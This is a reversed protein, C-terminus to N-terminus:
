RATWYSPWVCVTRAIHCTKEQSLIGEAFSVSTGGIREIGFATLSITPDTVSREYWDM